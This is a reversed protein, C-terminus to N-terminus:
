VYTKAVSIMQTAVDILSVIPRRMILARRRQVIFPCFSAQPNITRTATHKPKAARSDGVEVLLAAM